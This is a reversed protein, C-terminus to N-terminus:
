KIEKVEIARVDMFNKKADKKRFYIALIAENDGHLDSTGTIKGDCFGAWYKKVRKM